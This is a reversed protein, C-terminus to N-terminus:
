CNKPSEKVQGVFATGISPLVLVHMLVNLKLYLKVQKNQNTNKQSM